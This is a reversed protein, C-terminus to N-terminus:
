WPTSVEQSRAKLQRRRAVAWKWLHRWVNQMIHFYDYQIAVTQGFVTRIANYYAKCSVPQSNQL